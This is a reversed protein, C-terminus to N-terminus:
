GPRARRVRRRVLWGALLLLAAAGLPWGWAVPQKAAPAPPAYAARRAAAERHYAVLAALVRTSARARADPLRAEAEYAEQWLRLATTARALGRGELDYFRALRAQGEAGSPDVFTDPDDGKDGDYEHGRADRLTPVTLGWALRYIEPAEAGGRKVLARVLGAAFRDPRAAIAARGEAAFAADDQGLGALAQAVAPPAALGRAAEGLRKAYLDELLLHHNSIIRLGAKALPLREGLLGGLTAADRLLSQAFTARFFDFPGVQLTHIQNAVDQVHHFSAGAFTAELWARAPLDSVRALLALDAYLQAFEGGFARTTPPVAFRAPDERLVRPDDSLPEDTLAYHAHAQSSTGALSGLDLTAPDFPLLQGEPGRVLERRGDRLLRQQNRKDDDPWRSAVQLLVGRPRATLEDLTPDFGHVKAAPNLMALQKFGWADFSALDPFQKLFESRLAGDPCEALARWVSARWADLDDPGPPQLQEALWAERGSWARATLTQHVLENYAPAAAPALLAACLAFAPLRRM